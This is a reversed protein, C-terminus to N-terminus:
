RCVQEESVNEYLSDLPSQPANSMNRIVHTYIMTTEVHKHGLLDQIERINVGKMLLHTAFSHRLTHVSAHKIIGASNLANRIAKQISTENIHHRRIKGGRPDISLKVSPFIYQWRWERGAKPYKRALGDPLYVEGYGAALDKEHLKKVEELQQKLSERAIQPLITKRDKNGKAARVFILASDFDVDQVRLRALEMLRLGSGYLLYAILKNRGKLEELLTQVENVSLVVPLRQGRKARVSKNLNDLKINLVERFLFLIANFAQNQTSSSVRKNVALYTLFDTVEGESLSNPMIDKQKIEIIYGFFKRIWDIYTRETSYSYHKIRILDRAKKIVREYNDAGKGAGLSDPKSEFSEDNQFQEFYIKLAEQAQHLQWDKGDIGELLSFFKSQRELFSLDAHTQSFKLFKDVWVAYYSVYKSTVFKKDLLFRQFDPLVNEYM